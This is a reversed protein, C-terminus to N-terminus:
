FFYNFIFIIFYIFFFSFFIFFYYLYIGEENKNDFNINLNNNDSNIEKIAKDDFIKEQISLLEDDGNEFHTCSIFTNITLENKPLFNLEENIFKYL